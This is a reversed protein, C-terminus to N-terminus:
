ATRKKDMDNGHFYDQIWPHPHKRINEVTDVIVDYDILVAIRECIKLLSELDHTVMVMTFRLNKHLNLILRDFRRAHIPDLGSTPEDLLLLNPDLALSRALAARKRMGGSLESPYLNQDEENLGCMKLKLIALGEIAENSLKTYEKLPTEINEKITLANFLAGDQFLIGRVEQLYKQEEANLTDIDKGKFFINGKTPQQLGIIEKLLVSKGAGSGGIIGIREGEYIELNLNKHIQKDGFSTDLNKVSIIPQM